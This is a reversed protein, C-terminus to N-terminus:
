KNVMLKMPVHDSSCKSFNKWEGADTTVKVIFQQLKDSLLNGLKDKIPSQLYFYDKPFGAIQLDPQTDVKSRKPM